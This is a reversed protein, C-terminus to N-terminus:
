AAPSRATTPDHSAIQSIRQPSLGLLAGADRVTYGDRLLTRVAATTAHEAVEHARRASQRADLAHVVTSPLEPHVEVQVTTVDAELMLSIAERAMDAVQDLRRAQTHVGKLEPVTIAWWAGVRRCVASYTTV